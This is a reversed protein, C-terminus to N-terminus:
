SGEISPSGIKEYNWLKQLRDKLASRFPIKSLYDYTVENEAKVWASTEESRDDELWRYPDNVKTDFYTDTTEGKKTQPYKLSKQNQSFSHLTTMAILIFLLKKM